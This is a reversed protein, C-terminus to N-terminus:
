WLSRSSMYWAGLRSGIKGGTKESRSRVATMRAPAFNTFTKPLWFDSLLERRSAGWTSRPTSEWSTVRASILALLQLAMVAAGKFASTCCAPKPASAYFPASTREQKNSLYKSARHESSPRFPWIAEAPGEDRRGITSAILDARRRRVWPSAIDLWSRM